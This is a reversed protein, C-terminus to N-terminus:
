SKFISPWASRVEDLVRPLDGQVGYPETSQTGWTEGQWGESFTLMSKALITANYVTKPHDTLYDVFIRWRPSYYSSVLGGWVKSAYDNIEGHPGWLTIQNRANYEYYSPETTSNPAAWSRADALWKSLLFNENTLLVSDLSSLLDLLKGGASSLSATYSGTSPLSTGNYIGMFDLYLQTFANSLVQRTMDVMDYRFAPDNWLEPASAVGQYFLNWVDVLVSPDYPISTGHDGSKNYIGTINPSLELVSKMVDMYTSNTNNYVSTRLRDWANYLQYPVNGTSKAVGPNYRTTAWDHFYSDTDISANSWAQDLLLDYIIENGEQGEMTLGFGVLSSSNSLAQIPNLTINLIQGSLGLNGGYDHLQCWIWPKGFYSNTRQWQPSSESWLDLILMDENATVGGLYAEIRETTWFDASSHFLWAQMMRIADADAAKPSKWTNHTLNRLFDLNGSQPNNENYQDLTFIHTINGNAEFQKAIFSQQIQTFLDLNESPNLFTTNTYNYPFDNWQSGILVSANPYVRKISRPVFGTFAPLVPTMGLEVMRTVIKKQLDFQSNIWFMPLEGSWDGQINGFRNWAQFAPGSWFDFIEGDNFGFERWTDVLHKEQGVWALPLNIGHLAM